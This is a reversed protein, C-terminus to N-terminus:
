PFFAHLIGVYGTGVRQTPEKKGAALVVRRSVERIGEACRKKRNNAEIVVVFLLLLLMM